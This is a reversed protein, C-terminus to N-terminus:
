VGPSTCDRSIYLRSSARKFGIVPVFGNVGDTVSTPVQESHGIGAASAASVVALIAVISDSTQVASSDKEEIVYVVL